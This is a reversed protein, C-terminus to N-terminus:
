LSARYVPQLVPTPLPNIVEEIFDLVVLETKFGIKAFIGQHRLIQALGDLLLILHLLSM